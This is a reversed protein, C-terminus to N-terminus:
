TKSRQKGQGANGPYSEVFRDLTVNEPEQYTNGGEYVGKDEITRPLSRLPFDDVNGFDKELSGEEEDELMSSRNQKARKPSLSPNENAILEKRWETFCTKSASMHHNLARQSM